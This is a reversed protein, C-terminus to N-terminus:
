WGPQPDFCGDSQRVAIGWGGIDFVTNDAITSGAMGRFEIGLVADHVTNHTITLGTVDGPLNGGGHIGVGAGPAMSIHNGEIRIDSGCAVGVGVISIDTFRSNTVAGSNPANLADCAGAYSFNAGAGGGRVEIDSVAVDS